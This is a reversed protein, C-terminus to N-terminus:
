IVAVGRLVASLAATDGVTDHPGCRPCGHCACVHHYSTDGGLLDIAVVRGANGRNLVLGALGAALRAHHPLFGGPGLDRESDYAAYLASLVASKDHQLRRSRYCAYCPGQGPVVWPGVLIHPHEMVVPLWPTSYRFALRDIRDCMDPAPRWLPVVVASPEEAFAAEVDDDAVRRGPRAAALHAAVADGFPGLAVTAIWLAAAM